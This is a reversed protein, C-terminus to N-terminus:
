YQRWVHDEGVGATSGRHVANRKAHSCITHVRLEGMSRSDQNPFRAATSAAGIRFSHGAYKRSDIGAAELAKRVETIFRERTLYRGRSFRFFSWSDAGRCVMYNLTAAVPCLDEGTWGLYIQVGRCFPDTKSAKITVELFQPDTTNDLRVDGYSLHVGADYGADSPVM